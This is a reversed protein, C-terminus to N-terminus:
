RNVATGIKKKMADVKKALVDDQLFANAIEYYYVSAQIKNQEEAHEAFAVALQMMNSDPGIPVDNEELQTRIQDLTPDYRYGLKDYIFCLEAQAKNSSEYQLSMVECCAALEYKKQEAYLFGLGRYCQAVDSPRFAFHFIHKVAAEYEKQRGLRILNQGYEFRIQVSVPNWKLAKDLAKLADAHRNLDFLLVAYQLYVAAYNIPSRRVTKTPRSYFAYLDYEMPETFCHYESVADDAYLNQKEYRAILPEILALAEDFRQQHIKFQVEELVSDQWLGHNQLTSALDKKQDESILNFMMRGCARVVEKGQPHNKYKECQANLYAIDKRADGTLGNTIELMVADFSKEKPKKNFFGM